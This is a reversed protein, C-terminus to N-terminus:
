LIVFCHMLFNVGTLEGHFMNIIGFKVQKYEHFLRANVILKFFGQIDRCNHSYFNCFVRENGANVFIVVSPHRINIAILFHPAPTNM